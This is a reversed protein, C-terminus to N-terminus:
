KGVCHQLRARQFLKGETSPVASLTKCELARGRWSEELGKAKLKSESLPTCQSQGPQSQVKIRRDEGRSNSPYCAYEVM